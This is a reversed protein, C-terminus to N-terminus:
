PVEVLHHARVVVHRQRQVEAAQRPVNNKPGRSLAAFLKVCGFKVVCEGEPMGFANADDTRRTPLCRLATSCQFARRSRFALWERSLPMTVSLYQHGNPATMLPAPALPASLSSLPPPPSSSSSSSTRWVYGSSLALSRSTASLTTLDTTTSGTPSDSNSCVACCRVMLIRLRTFSNALVSPRTQQQQLPWLLRATSSRLRSM